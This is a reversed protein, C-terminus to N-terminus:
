PQLGVRQMITRFRADSRLPDLAPDVKLNVLMPSREHVAKQLWAFVQEKEGLGLYVIAQDYASVYHDKSLKHLEDLVKLAENRQGAVGYAHGLEAVFLASGPSLTVAKQIEIIAQRHNGKQEHTQGLWLHALAHNSDLELADGFQKIAQDYRRAFYLRLGLSSSIAVSLPDLQLARRTEAIAEDHKEIQSLYLGYLQHATAYSPNLELARKYERETAQRDWDYLTRISGLAGHAEALTEDLELAKRAEIEAKPFVEDPRRANLAFSGLIMHADAMGAYAPAYNPDKQIAEEFYQIAKELDKETRRNWFYRGKLYAEHAEPNVPRARALQQREEPTLKAQIQGTIAAAIQNQLSVVNGLEQTYSDAWVHRDTSADILQATVRVHSGSKVVSGEVIADVNLERAIQRLPERAGKYRMVSTRSIVRLSSVKALSTILEDTMGDVFYEEGLNGSLNEFPLVALSRARTGSQGQLSHSYYWVGTASVAAVALLILLVVISRRFVLSERKSSGKFPSSAGELGPSGQLSGIFRYGKRPVTEIYRPRDAPDDLTDRLRKIVTNLGADFDVFTDSPWLKERLEQRTVVEGPRSLLMTLIQFPQEQLKIKLGNKLLEGAHLDIDFVGFRVRRFRAPVEM